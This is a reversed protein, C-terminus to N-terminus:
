PDPFGVDYFLFELKFHIRGLFPDARYRVVAFRLVPFDCAVPCAAFAHATRVAPTGTVEHARSINQAHILGRYGECDVVHGAFDVAVGRPLVIAYGYVSFYVVHGIVHVKYFPGDFVVVGRQVFVLVERALGHKRQHALLGSSVLALHGHGVERSAAGVALM